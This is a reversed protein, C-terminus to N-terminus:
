FVIPQNYLWDIKLQNLNFHALKERKLQGDIFADLYIDSNFIQHHVHYIEKNIAFQQILSLLSQKKEDSWHKTVHMHFIIIPENDPLQAIHEKLLSIEDGEFIEIPHELFVKRAKNYYKRRKQEEPYYLSQLWHHEDDVTIDMKNRTIGIKRIPHVIPELSSLDDYHDIHVKINFTDPDGVRVSKNFTYGYWDYNLLLGARTGLEIVNFNTKGSTKIIETFIPVLVSSREVINKKLDFRRVDMMISDFHEYVFAKFSIFLKDSPAKPHETFNLYYERLANDNEYLCKLTAAFFMPIFGVDSVYPKLRLLFVEDNILENSIFHYLPSDSKVINRYAVFQKKLKEPM